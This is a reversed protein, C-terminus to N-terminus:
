IDSYWKISQDSSNHVALLHRNLNSKKHRALSAASKLISSCIECMFKESNRCVIHITKVDDGEGEDDVLMLM